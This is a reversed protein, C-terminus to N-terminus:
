QKELIYTEEVGGCFWFKVKVSSVGFMHPTIEFSGFWHLSPSFMNEETEKFVTLLNRKKLGNVKGTYSGHSEFSAGNLEHNPFEPFYVRASGRKLAKM